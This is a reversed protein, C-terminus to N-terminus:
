SEIKIKRDINLRLLNSNVKNMINSYSDLKDMIDKKVSLNNNLEKSLSNNNALFENLLDRTESYSSQAYNIASHMNQLSIDLDLINRNTLQIHTVLHSAKETDLLININNILRIAQENTSKLNDMSDTVVSKTLENLHTFSDNSKLDLQNISNNIESLLKRLDLKLQETASTFTALSQKSEENYNDVSQSFTKLSEQVQAPTNAILKLEQLIDSTSNQQDQMIQLIQSKFEREKKVKELHLENLKSTIYEKKITEIKFLPISIRLLIHTIIGWASVKFKTGIDSLVPSLDSISSLINSGSTSSQTQLGQTLGKIVQSADQIALGIGLFTGLLGIILAFGAGSEVAEDWKPNSMFINISSEDSYSIPASVKESQKTLLSKRVNWGAFITLCFCIIILCFFVWDLASQPLLFTILEM